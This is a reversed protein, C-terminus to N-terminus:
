MLPLTNAHFLYHFLRIISLGVLIPLVSNIKKVHNVRKDFIDNAMEVQKGCLRCMRSGELTEM